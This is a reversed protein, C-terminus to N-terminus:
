CHDTTLMDKERDGRHEVLSNGNVPCAHISGLGVSGCVICRAFFSQDLVVLLHHHADEPKVFQLKRLPDSPGPDTAM